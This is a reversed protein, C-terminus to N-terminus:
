SPVSPRPINLDDRSQTHNSLMNKMLSIRLSFKNISSEDEGIMLLKKRLSGADAGRQLSVLFRGQTSKM